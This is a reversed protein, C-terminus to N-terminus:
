AAKREKAQSSKIKQLGSSIKKIDADTLASLTHKDSALVLHRAEDLATIGSPTLGVEYARADDKTRKRKLLGRNVLRRTIDALTSRDVGTQNVADTQSLNNGNAYCELLQYQRPTLGLPKLAEYRAADMIQGSRHLLNALTHNMTM